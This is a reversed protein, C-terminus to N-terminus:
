DSGGRDALNGPQGYVPRGCDGRRDCVGGCIMRSAEHFLEGPPVSDPSDPSESDVYLSVAGAPTQGMVYLFRYHTAHQAIYMLQSKVRQFSVQGADAESGTLDRLLSVELNQAMRQGQALLRARTERDAAERSQMAAVFGAASALAALMIISALVKCFSRPGKGTGAAACDSIPNVSM